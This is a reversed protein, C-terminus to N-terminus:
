DQVGQGITFGDLVLLGAPQVGHEGESVEAVPLVLPVLGLLFSGKGAESIYYLLYFVGGIVSFSLSQISAAERAFRIRRELLLNSSLLM